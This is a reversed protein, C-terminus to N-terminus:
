RALVILLKTPTRSDKWGVYGQVYVNRTLLPLVHAPAVKQSVGAMREFSRLPGPIMIEPAAHLDNPEPPSAEQRDLSIRNDTLSQADAPLCLPPLLFVALLITLRLSFQM